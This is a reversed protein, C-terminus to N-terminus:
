ERGRLWKHQGYARAKAAGRQHGGAPTGGGRGEHRAQLREPSTCVLWSCGSDQGLGAPENGHHPHNAYTATTTTNHSEMHTCLLLPSTPDGDVNQVCFTAHALFIHEFGLVAESKNQKKETRQSGEAGTEEPEPHVPQGGDGHRSLPMREGDLGRRQVQGRHHLLRASHHDALHHVLVLALSNKRSRTRRREEKQRQQRGRDPGTHGQGNTGCIRGERSASEDFPPLIGWCGTHLDSHHGTEPNFKELASAAFQNKDVLGALHLVTRQDTWRRNDTDGPFHPVAGWHPPRHHRFDVNYWDGMGISQSDEKETRSIAEQGHKAAHRGDDPQCLGRLLTRVGGRPEPPGAEPRADGPQGQTGQRPLREGPGCPQKGGHHPMHDADDQAQGDWTREEGVHRLCQWALEARRSCCRADPSDQQYEWCIRM